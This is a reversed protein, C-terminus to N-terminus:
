GCGSGEVWSPPNPPLKKQYCLRPAMRQYCLGHQARGRALCQWLPQSRGIAEGPTHRPQAIDDGATVNPVAIGGSSVSLVFGRLPWRKIGCALCRSHALFHEAVETYCRFDCGGIISGCHPEFILLENVVPAVNCCQVFRLPSRRELRPEATKCCHLLLCASSRVLSVAASPTTYKM